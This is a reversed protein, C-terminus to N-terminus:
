MWIPMGPLRLVPIRNARLRVLVTAQVATLEICPNQPSGKQVSTGRCIQQSSLVAHM